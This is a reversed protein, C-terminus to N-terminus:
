QSANKPRMLDDFVLIRQFLKRVELRTMRLNLAEWAIEQAMPSDKILPHLIVSYVEWAM